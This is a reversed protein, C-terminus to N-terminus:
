MARTGSRDRRPMRALERLHSENINSPREAKFVNLRIERAPVPPFEIPKDAGITTVRAAARWAVGRKM